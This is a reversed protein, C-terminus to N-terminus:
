GSVALLDMRQFGRAALGELAFNLVEADDAVGSIVVIIAPSQLHPLVAALARVAPHHHARQRHARYEFALVDALRRGPVGDAQQVRSIARRLRRPDAPSLLRRPRPAVHVQEALLLAQRVAPRPALLPTTAAPGDPGYAAIALPIGEQALTLTAMLLYYALRDAEDADRGALRVALVAAQALDHRRDKVVLQLLRATQKWLIDRLTDGAEYHRAGYYDLGRRTGAARAESTMVASAGTARSTELYRRALWAAYAARPIVRLQALPRDFAAGTLGWPDTWILRAEVAGSGALPPVVRVDLVVDRDTTKLPVAYVWRAHPAIHVHGLVRRETKLVTRFRGPQGALARISPVDFALLHPRLRALSTAAVAMLLGLTGAAALALVDHGLTGAAAAAAAFAAALAALRPTPNRGLITPPLLAHHVSGELTQLLWPFAALALAAVGRRGPFVAEWVFPLALLNVAAIFLREAEAAGALRVRLALAGVAVGMHPVPIFPVALALLLASLAAM